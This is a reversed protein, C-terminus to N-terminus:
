QGREDRRIPLGTALTRKEFFLHTGDTFIFNEKDALILTFTTASAGDEAAFTEVYQAGKISWTGHTTTEADDNMRWTGNRDFRYDHRSSHWEGLRLKSLAINDSKGPVPHRIIEADVEQWGDRGEAVLKFRLRALDMVYKERYGDDYAFRPQDYKAELATLEAPAAAHLLVPALALCGAALLVKM